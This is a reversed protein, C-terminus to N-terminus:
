PTLAAIIPVERALRQIVEHYVISFHVVKLTSNHNIQEDETTTANEWKWIPQCTTPNIQQTLAQEIAKASAWATRNAEDYTPADVFTSVTVAYVANDTGGLALPANDIVEGNIVICPFEPTVPPNGTYISRLYQGGIRRLISANTISTTPTPSIWLSTLSTPMIQVEYAEREETADADYLLAYDGDAYACTTTVTISDSGAAISTTQQGLVNTEILTKISDLLGITNTTTAM